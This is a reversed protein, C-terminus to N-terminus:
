ATIIARFRSGALGFQGSREDCFSKLNMCRAVVASFKAEAARGMEGGLSIRARWRKAEAKATIMAGEGLGPELTEAM